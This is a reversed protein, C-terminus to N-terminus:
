ATIATEMRTPIAKSKARILATFINNQDAMRFPKNAGGSTMMTTRRVLSRLTIPFWTLEGFIFTSPQVHAITILAAALASTPNERYIRNESTERSHVEGSRRELLTRQM